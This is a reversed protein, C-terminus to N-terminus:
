EKPEESELADLEDGVFRAKGQESMEKQRKRDEASCGFLDIEVAEKPALYVTMAAMVTM